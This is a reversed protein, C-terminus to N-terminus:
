VLFDAHTKRTGKHSCINYACGQLLVSWRTLRRPSQKNTKKKRRMEIKLSEHDNKREFQSYPYQNGMKLRVRGTHVTCTKCRKQDEIKKVKLYEAKETGSTLVDLFFLTTCNYSM